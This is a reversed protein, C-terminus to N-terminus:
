ATAFHSNTDPINKGPGREPYGPIGPDSILPPLTDWLAALEAAARAAVRTEHKFKLPHEKIYRANYAAICPACRTWGGPAYRGNLGVCQHRYEKPECKVKKPSAWWHKNYIPKENQIAVKEAALAEQRTAYHCMTIHAINPFWDSAKKHQHLRWLARESIGAYLLVGAATFHRYLTCAM